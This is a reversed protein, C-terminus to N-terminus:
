DFLLLYLVDNFLVQHLQTVYARADEGRLKKASMRHTGGTNAYVAMITDVIQDYERQPAVGNAIRTSMDSMQQFTYEAYVVRQVTDCELWGARLERASEVRSSINTWAETM